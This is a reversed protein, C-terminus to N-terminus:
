TRPVGIVGGNGSPKSRATKPSPQKQPASRTNQCAGPTYV